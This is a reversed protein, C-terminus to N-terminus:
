LLVLDIENLLMFFDFRKLTLLTPLKWTVTSYHSMVYSWMADCGYRYRSSMWPQLSMVYFLLETGQLGLISLLMLWNWLPRFLLNNPIPYCIFNDILLYISLKLFIIYCFHMGISLPPENRRKYVFQKFHIHFNNIPWSLDSVLDIYKAICKCLQLVIEQLM